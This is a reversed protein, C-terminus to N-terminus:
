QQTIKYGKQRLMAVLGDSGLMHAAGVVVYCNGASFCSEIRPVWRRNRDVVLSQYVSPSDKFEKLLVRELTATDGARWATAIQQVDKVETDGGELLTTLETVQVDMPTGALYDIQEAATELATFSLNRDTAKKRYYMDVGLQPDFGSKQLDIQEITLEVLWPQMSQVLAISLGGAALRQSLKDYTARPLVTALTKGEPLMGKGLVAFMLDASTPDAIELEEMLTTARGFANEMTSPFPHASAPLLHVSGVLWNTRGDREVSWILGRATGSQAAVGSGLLVGTAVLAVLARWRRPLRLSPSKSISRSM